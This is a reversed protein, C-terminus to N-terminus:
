DGGGPGCGVDHDAAAAGAGRRFQGPQALGGDEDRQHGGATVLLAAGGPVQGLDASGPDEGAGGGGGVAQAVFQELQELVGSLAAGQRGPGALVATRVGGAPNGLLDDPCKALSRDRLARLRADRLALYRDAASETDAMIAVM